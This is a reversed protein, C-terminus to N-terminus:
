DGSPQTKQVSADPSENPTSKSKKAPDVDNKECKQKNQSQTESLSKVVKASFEVNDCNAKPSLLPDSLPQTVDMMPTKQEAEKTRTWSDKTKSKSEVQKAVNKEDKKPEVQKAEEQFYVNIISFTLSVKKPEPKSPQPQQSENAAKKFPKAPLIISEASKGVKRV